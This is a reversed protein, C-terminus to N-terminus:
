AVESQRQKLEDYRAQAKPPVLRRNRIKVTDLAGDAIERYITRKSVGRSKASDGISKWDEDM